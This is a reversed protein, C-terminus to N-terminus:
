KEDRARLDLTLSLYYPSLKHIIEHRKEIFHIFDKSLIQIKAGGGGVRRIRIDRFGMNMLIQEAMETTQLAEPTIREVVPIRTALCAYSPKDWLVIGAERAAGRIMDKTIGCVRLPSLVGLERLARMGPRDWEEDDANTGDLVTDIGCAGAHDCIAGFIARKCYYCRDPPNSIVEEHSFIDLSIVDLEIGATQCFAEADKHEFEPQFATRVYVARVMEAYQKAVHLLYTSDIGGSYAVVVKPHSSFFSSLTVPIENSM